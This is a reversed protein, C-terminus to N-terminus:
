NWVISDIVPQLGRVVADFDGVTNDPGLEELILVWHGDVKLVSVWIRAMPSMGCCTLGAYGTSGFSVIRDSGFDLRVGDVGGFSVPVPKALRVVGPLAAIYKALDSPPDILEGSKANRFVKDIRGVDLEAGHVNGFELGLWKPFNVDIDGRCPYGPVCDLDVLNNVTITLPPDFNARYTGPFMTGGDALEKIAVPSPHMAPPPPPTTYSAAPGPTAPRPPSAPAGSGTTCAQGVVVLVAVAAWPKIASDLGSRQM